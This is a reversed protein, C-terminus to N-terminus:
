RSSREEALGMVRTWLRPRVDMEQKRRDGRVVVHPDSGPSGFSLAASGSCLFRGRHQSGDTDAQGDGLDLHPCERRAIVSVEFLVRSGVSPQRKEM